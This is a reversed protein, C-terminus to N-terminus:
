THGRVTRWGSVRERKKVGALEIKKEIREVCSQDGKGCEVPASNGGLDRPIPGRKRKSKEEVRPEERRRSGEPSSFV